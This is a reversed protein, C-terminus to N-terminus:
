DRWGERRKITERTFDKIEQRTFNEIIINRLIRRNKGSIKEINNKKLFDYVEDRWLLELLSKSNVEKNDQSIRQCILQVNGNEDEEAVYIGWWDPIHEAISDSYKKGVTICIRDFTKNYCEQQNILRQLTDADSKIEYGYLLGNAVAIDVRAEGDCITMEDIIRYDLDKNQEIIMDKLVPRIEIDKLM